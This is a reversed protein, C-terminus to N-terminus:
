DSKVGVQEDINKKIEEESIQTKVDKNDGYDDYFDEEDYGYDIDKEEHEDKVHEETEDNVQEKSEDAAEMKTESKVEDQKSGDGVYYDGLQEPSVELVIM